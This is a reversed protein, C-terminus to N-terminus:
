MGLGTLFKAREKEGVTDCKVFCIIVIGELVPLIPLHTVGVVPYKKLVQM